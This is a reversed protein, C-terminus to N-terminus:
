LPEGIIISKIKDHTADLNIPGYNIHNNGDYECLAFPPLNEIKYSREVTFLRIKDKNAILYLEIIEGVYGGIPQFSYLIIPTDKIFYLPLIVDIMSFSNIPPSHKLTKCYDVLSSIAMDNQKNFTFNGGTAKLANYVECLSSYHSKSQNNPAQTNEIEAYAKEIDNHVIQRKQEFTLDNWGDNALNEKLQSLAEAIEQSQMDTKTEQRNLYYQLTIGIIADLIVLVLGSVWAATNGSVAGGIILGIFLPLLIHTITKATKM